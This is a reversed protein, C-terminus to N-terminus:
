MLQYAIYPSLEACFCNSLCSTVASPWPNADDQQVKNCYFIDHQLEGTKGATSNSSKVAPSAPADALPGDDQFPSGKLKDKIVVAPANSNRQFKINDSDQLSDAYPSSTAHEDEATSVSGYADDTAASKSTLRQLFNMSIGQLSM